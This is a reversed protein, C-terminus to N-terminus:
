KFEGKLHQALSPIAKFHEAMDKHNKLIEEQHAKAHAANHKMSDALHVISQLRNNLVPNKRAQSRTQIKTIIQKKLKNKSSYLM